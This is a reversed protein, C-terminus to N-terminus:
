KQRRTKWKYVALGKSDSGVKKRAGKGMLNKQMKLELEVARLKAERDLRSELERAQALRQREITEADKGRIVPIEQTELTSKRLRMAPKNVLEPVTEFHAVPDFNLAQEEDDVFVIHSPRNVRKAEKSGSKRSSANGDDSGGMSMEDDDDDEHDDGDKQDVGSQEEDNDEDVYHIGEKLRDIKKLNVSRQYAVYNQDQTKLLTLFEHDFKENRRKVVHVGKKTESNIMGFYFEDPNRFAAKEKLTKIADEKKHFDKARLVYDKHKELMGLKARALPQSRERHTRRPACITATGM